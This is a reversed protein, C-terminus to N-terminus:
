KVFTSNYFDIIKKSAKEKGLMKNAYALNYYFNKEDKKLYIAKIFNKKAKSYEGLKLQACGLNYLAYPSEKNYKVALEFNEEAMSYIQKKMFILGLNYYAKYFKPDKKIAKNLNDIADDPRNKDEYINALILYTEPDISAEPIKKLMEYAENTHNTNYLAYANQKLDFITDSDLEEAFVASNFLFILLLIFTKKM